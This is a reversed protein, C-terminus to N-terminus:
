SGYQRVAIEVEQSRRMTEPFDLLRNCIAGSTITDDNKKPPPQPVGDVITFMLMEEKRKAFAFQISNEALDKRMKTYMVHRTKKNTSWGPTGDGGMRTSYENHYFYLNPYSERLEGNEDMTDDLLIHLVVMGNKENEVGIFATNYKRGVWRVLIALQEPKIKGYIQAVECHTKRSMVTVSAFDGHELGQAADVGIVYLEGPQPEQFIHIYYPYPKGNQDHTFRETWVSSPECLGKPFFCNQSQLFDCEYEQAWTRRGDETKESLLREKLKAKKWDDDYKPNLTWPLRFFKSNTECRETANCEDFFFGSVGNPTSEITISGSPGVPVAQTLGSLDKDEIGEYFAPESLLLNHICKSRGTGGSKDKKEIGLGTKKIVQIIIKSGEMGDFEMLRKTNHKLGPKLFKPISNYMLKVRALLEESAEAEHTLIVTRRAPNLMTDWLYLAAILTTLGHQRAKLIVDRGTRNFLFAVQVPNLKFDVIGGEKSDIKMFSEIAYRPDNLYREFDFKDKFSPDEPDLSPYPILQERTLDLADLIKDERATGKM